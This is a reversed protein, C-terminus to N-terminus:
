ISGGAKQESDRERNRNRGHLDVIKLFQTLVQDVNRYLIGRGGVKNWKSINGQWDDILIDGAARIHSVKERSLCAIVELDGFHKKVWRKKQMVARDFDSIPCGTLVIRECIELGGVLEYARRKVPMTLWFDKAQRILPWLESGLQQPTRHFLEQVHEDFAGITNDLDIFCRLDPTTDWGALRQDRRM